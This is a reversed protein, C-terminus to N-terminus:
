CGAAAALGTTEGAMPTVAVRRREICFLVGATVALAVGLVASATQREDTM